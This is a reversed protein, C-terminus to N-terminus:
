GFLSSVKGGRKLMRDLALLNLMLHRPHHFNEARNYHPTYTVKRDASNIWLSYGYKKLPYKEMIYAYMREFIEKAWQARTHEYIFLSGILVEEQAWLVKNTEWRNEDVNLLGAFVWGYVDDWAVEVYHHFREAATTFLKGDKRRAAEFLIMWLTEIAHGTYM